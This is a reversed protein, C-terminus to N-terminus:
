LANTRRHVSHSSTRRRQMRTFSVHTTQVYLKYITASSLAQTAHSRCPFWGDPDTPPARCLNIAGASVPGPAATAATKATAATAAEAAALAAAAAATVPTTTTPPPPQMAAPAAQHLQAARTPPAATASDFIGAPNNKMDSSTM